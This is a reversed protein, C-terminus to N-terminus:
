LRNAAQRPPRFPVPLLDLFRALLVICSRDLGAPRRSHAPCQTSIREAPRDFKDQEEECGPGQPKGPLAPYYSLDRFQNGKAILAGLGRGPIHPARKPM